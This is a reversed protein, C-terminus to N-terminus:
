NSEYILVFGDKVYENVKKNDYDELCVKKNMAKRIAEELDTGDCIIIDDM